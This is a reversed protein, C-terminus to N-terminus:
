GNENELKKVTEAYKKLVIAAYEGKVSGGPVANILWYDPRNIEGANVLIELAEKLPEAASTEYPIEKYDCVSKIVAEAYARWHNIIKEADKPNDAFGYEVIVTEVDGTERIMFYYDKNSSEPLTRTFARRRKAGAKVLNDLIMTALKGDSHISYITEAGQAQGNYANIHNSICIDARSARVKKTREGSTLTVDDMRTLAVDIGLENFRDYMYKSIQLVMDKEKFDQNSGGGPDKGGHGPDIIIKM